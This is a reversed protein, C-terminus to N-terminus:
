EPRVNTAKEGKLTAGREFAVRQKEALTRFGKAQIDQFHRPAKLLPMASFEAVHAHPLRRLKAGSLIRQIVEQSARHHILYALAYRWGCQDALELAEDVVQSMATLTRREKTASM